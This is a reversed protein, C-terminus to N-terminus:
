MKIESNEKISNNLEIIKQDLISNFEAALEFSSIFDNMNKRMFGDMFCINIQSLNSNLNSFRSNWIGFKSNVSKNFKMEDDPNLFIDKGLIKLDFKLKSFALSFAEPDKELFSDLIDQDFDIRYKGSNKIKNLKYINKM